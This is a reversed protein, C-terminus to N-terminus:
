VTKTITEHRSNLKTDFKRLNERLAKLITADPNIISVQTKLDIIDQALDTDFKYLADLQPEQIKNMDFFGSYGYDAFKLRDICKEFLKSISSTDAMLPLHGPKNTIDSTFRDFSMKAEELQGALHMRLIKDTNRRAEKEAYGGYGPVFRIVQEVFKRTKDSADSM